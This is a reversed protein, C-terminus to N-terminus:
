AEDRWSSFWSNESTSSSFGFGPRLLIEYLIKVPFASIASVRQSEISEFSIIVGSLDCVSPLILDGVNAALM